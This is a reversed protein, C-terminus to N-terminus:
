FQIELEINKIKETLDLIIIGSWPVIEVIQLQDDKKLHKAIPPM